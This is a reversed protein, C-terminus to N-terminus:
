TLDLVILDIISFLRGNLTSASCTSKPFFCDYFSRGKLLPCFRCLPPRNLCHVFSLHIYCQNARMNYELIFNIFIFNTVSALLYKKGPALKSPHSATANNTSVDEDDTESDAFAEEDKSERCVVDVGEVVDEERVVM